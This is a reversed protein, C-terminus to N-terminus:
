RADEARLRNLFAHLYEKDFGGTRQWEDELARLHCKVQESPIRREASALRRKAEAIVNAETWVPDLSGVINGKPNRVTIPRAAQTVLKVQEDSLILDPM